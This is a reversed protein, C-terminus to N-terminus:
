GDGPERGPSPFDPIAAAMEDDDACEFCREDPGHDCNGTWGPETSGDSM